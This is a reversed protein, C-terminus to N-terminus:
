GVSEVSEAGGNILDIIWDPVDFGSVILYVAVALVVFIILTKPDKWKM